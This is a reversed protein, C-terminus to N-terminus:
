LKNRNRGSKVTRTRENKKVTRDNGNHKNKPAMRKGNNKKERKEEQADLVM